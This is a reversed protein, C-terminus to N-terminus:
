GFLELQRRVAPTPPAAPADSTFVVPESPGVVGLECALGLEALRAGLAGAALAPRNNTRSLHLAFLRELGAHALRTALEAAQVNSLHGRDSRIRKKLYAPYPGDRLMDPDHNAELGLWRCGALAEAVRDTARGLDTALGFASGDPFGLRYGVPECADHLTRFATVEVEGLSFPRDPTVTLLSARVRKSLRVARAAGQTLGLALHGLRSLGRLGAVHDAHEHTVLVAQVDELREGVAALRRALEAASFGCDILLRTEGWRVLAANGSSGSGLFCLKLM